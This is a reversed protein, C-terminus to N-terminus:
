LAHILAILWITQAICSVTFHKDSWKFSERIFARFLLQVVFVVQMTIILPMSTPVDKVFPSILTGVFILLFFIIGPIVSLSKLILGATNSTKKDDSKSQFSHSNVTTEM